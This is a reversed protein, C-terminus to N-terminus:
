VLEMVQDLGILLGPEAGLIYRIALIVGPMFCERSISRHAIELTEGQCGFTVTHEALIGPLRMSHIRIDDLVGGRVGAISEHGAGVSAIKPNAAAIESVTFLATGSPADKKGPHHREVVEVSSYFPAIKRAMTIMLNAGVSFNPVILCSARNELALREFRDIADSPIGTAGVIVRAGAKLLIPVNYAVADGISVDVIVDPNSALFRDIDDTITIDIADIGAVGGWDRGVNVIDLACAPSFGLGGALVRCIEVGMRGSAGIVGVRTQENM